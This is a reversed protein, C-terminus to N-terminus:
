LKVTKQGIIHNPLGWLQMLVHMKKAAQTLSACEIRTGQPTVVDVTIGNSEIKFM